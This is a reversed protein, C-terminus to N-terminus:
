SSISTTSTAQAEGAKPVRMGSIEMMQSFLYNIFPGDLEKRLREPTWSNGNTAGTPKNLAVCVTDLTRKVWDEDTPKPDREVLERGQKLFVDAEDYTFPSIRLSFGDMTVERVRM